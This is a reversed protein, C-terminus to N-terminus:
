DYREYIIQRRDMGSEKCLRRVDDVMERLGCVYVQMDRRGGLAELLLPQVRGVAGSWEPGPRTVTPVFRFGPREEHMRAFEGGYLLNSAYRTGYILTIERGAASDPLSQLMARFPVIGTGTAVLVADLVPEKWGFSGFFGRFDVTDGPQLTFLHPSFVGDAVRNLCIEFQADGRWPAAVSYARTVVRGAIENSLSAFQGPSFRVDEPMEFVFHRIDPALEVFSVLRATM